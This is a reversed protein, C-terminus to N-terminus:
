NWGLSNDATIPASIQQNRASGRGASGRSGRKESDVMAGAMLAGAPNSGPSASRNISNSRGHRAKRKKYRRAVFFMAAGYAAAGAVVGFGIGATTGVNSSTQAEESNSSGRGLPAAGSGADPDDAPPNTLWTDGQNVTGGNTKGGAAADEIPAILPITPDIMAMLANVSPDPNQYLVSNPTGIDVQLQNVMAKPIYTYALTRIFGLSRQSDYPQLSQVTVNTSQLNM